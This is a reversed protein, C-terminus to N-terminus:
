NTHRPFHISTHTVRGEPQHVPARARRRRPAAARRQRPLERVLANLLEGNEKEVLLEDDNEKAWTVFESRDQLQAYVTEAPCFQVGLRRDTMSGAEEAEMRDYVKQQREKFALEAKSAAAKKRDYDAKDKALQRLDNLLTNAM